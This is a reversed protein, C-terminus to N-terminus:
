KSDSLVSHIVKYEVSPVQQERYISSATAIFVLCKKLLVHQVVGGFCLSSM